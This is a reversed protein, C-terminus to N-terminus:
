LTDSWKLADNILDQPNLFSKLLFTNKTTRNQKCKFNTAMSKRFHPMSFSSFMFICM